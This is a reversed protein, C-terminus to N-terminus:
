YQVQLIHTDPIKRTPDTWIIFVRFPFSILSWWSVFWFVAPLPVSSAAERASDEGRESREGALTPRFGMTRDSNTIWSDWDQSKTVYGDTPYGFFRNNKMWSPWAMSHRPRRPASSWCGSRVRRKYCRCSTHKGHPRAHRSPWPFLRWTSVYIHCSFLCGPM